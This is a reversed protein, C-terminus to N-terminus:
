KNLFKEGVRVWDLFRNAHRIYALPIPLGRKHRRYAWLFDHVFEFVPMNWGPLHEMDAHDDLVASCAGRFEAHNYSISPFLAANNQHEYPEMMADMMRETIRAQPGSEYIHLSNSIHTQTGIGVGLRVALYEQLVSWQPLNVAHLGWHLDNSRNCVTMHLRDQRIKFMVLDNCPPDHTNEMLDEPRWVSLVARRDFPDRKLRRLLDPLQHAIRYGYAGYLTEGDDSFDVIRRNYPKLAAVDNRGALLWFAESLALWPNMKRGPVVQIRHQPQEIETVVNLLERTTTGKAPVQPADVLDLLQKRYVEGATRGTYVKM